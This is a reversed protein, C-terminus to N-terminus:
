HGSDCGEVCAGNKFIMSNLVGGESDYWIWEGEQKGAVYQGEGYKTGDESYSLWKGERKGDKFKVEWEVKGNEQYGVWKGEPIGGKFNAELVPKGIEYTRKTIGRLPTITRQGSLTTRMQNRNPVASMISMSSSRRGM